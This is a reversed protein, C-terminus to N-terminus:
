WLKNMSEELLFAIEFPDADMSKTIMEDFAKIVGSIKVALGSLVDARDPGSGAADKTYSEIYNELRGGIYRDGEIGLFLKEMEPDYKGFAAYIGVADAVLEDWVADKKEPFLRRCVFHTCEHYKRIRDSLATWEDAELGLRKASVANYPGASLVIVSDLYNRKDSTFRKFEASWDPFLNGKDAEAKLFEKKHAKIKTWNIVGDIMSAGQTDPIDVAECRNAMIQLFTVFDRRKNLTVCLVRGAPTDLYELKDKEDMCFHSLSKESVDRGRKVIDDYSAQGEGGPCLYLQKFEGALSEIVQRGYLSAEMNM